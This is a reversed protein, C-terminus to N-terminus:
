GLRQCGLVTRQLAQIGTIRAQILLDANGFLDTARQTRRKGVLARRAAIQAQDLLALPEVAQDAGAAGGLEFQGGVTGVAM